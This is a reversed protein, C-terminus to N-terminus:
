VRVCVIYRIGACACRGSGLVRALIGEPKSSPLTQRVAKCNASAVCVCRLTLIPPFLNRCRRSRVHPPRRTRHVRAFVAAAARSAARPRHHIQNRRCLEGAGCVRPIITPGGTAHVSLEARDLRVAPGNNVPPRRPPWESATDPRRQQWDAAMAVSPHCSSSCAAVALGCGCAATAMLPSNPPTADCRIGVAWVRACATLAPPSSPPPGAGAAESLVHGSM